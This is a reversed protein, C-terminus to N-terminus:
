APRTAPNETDALWRAARGIREVTTIPTDDDISLISRPWSCRARRGGQCPSGSGARPLQPCSVAVARNVIPMLNVAVVDKDCKTAIVADKKYTRMPKSEWGIRVAYTTRIEGQSGAIKPNSAPFGRTEKDSSRVTARRSMRPVRKRMKGVAPTMGATEYRSGMHYYM